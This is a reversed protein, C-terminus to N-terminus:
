RFVRFFCDAVCMALLDMGVNTGQAQLNYAAALPAPMGTIWDSVGEAIKANGLSELLKRLSQFELISVHCTLEPIMVVVCDNEPRRLRCVGVERRIATFEIDFPDTEEIRLHLRWTTLSEAMKREVAALTPLLHGQAPLMSQTVLLDLGPNESPL